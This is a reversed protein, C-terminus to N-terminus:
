LAYCLLQNGAIPPFFSEHTPKLYLICARKSCVQLFFYTFQTGSHLLPPMMQLVSKPAAGLHTKVDERGMEGESIPWKRGRCSLGIAKKKGRVRAYVYVHACVVTCVFMSFLTATLRPPVAIRLNFFAEKSKEEEGNKPPRGLPDTESLSPPLSLFGTQIGTSKHQISCPLSPPTRIYQVLVGQEAPLHAFHPM